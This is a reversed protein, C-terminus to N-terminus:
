YLRIELTSVNKVNVIVMQAEVFDGSQVAFHMGMQIVNQLAEMLWLIIRVVNQMWESLNMM